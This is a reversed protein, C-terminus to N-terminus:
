AAMDGIRFAPLSISLSPLKEHISVITDGDSNRSTSSYAPCLGSWDTKRRGSLQSFCPRHAPTCLDLLKLATRRHGMLHAALVLDCALVLESFQRDALADVRDRVSSGKVLDTCEGPDSAVILFAAQTLESGCVEEESGSVDIPARDHQRSVVEGYPAPRRVGGNWAFATLRFAQREGQSQRVYPQHIPHAAATGDLGQLHHTARIDGFQAIPLDDNLM